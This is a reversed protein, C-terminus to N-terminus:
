RPLLDEIDGTWEGAEHDGRGGAEKQKKLWCEREEVMRDRAALRVTNGDSYTDDDGSYHQLILSIDGMDGDDFGWKWTRLTGFANGRWQPSGGFRKKYAALLRKFFDLSENEYKLKIRVIRGPKACNGYTIYGWKFGPLDPVEVRTLYPHSWTSSASAMNVKDKATSIDEGLTIGAITRPGNDAALACVPSFALLLFFLILPKRM